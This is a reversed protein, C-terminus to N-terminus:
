RGALGDRLGFYSLKPAYTADFALAEMGLWHYKDTLGWTTVGTCAPEASCAAVVDHYIRRQAVSNRDPRM